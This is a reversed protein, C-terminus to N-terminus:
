AENNSEKRMTEDKKEAEELVKQVQNKTDHKELFNNM